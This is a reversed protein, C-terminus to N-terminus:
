ALTRMPRAAAAGQQLHRDRWRRLTEVDPHSRDSYVATAVFCDGFIIDYNIRGAIADICVACFSTGNTRMMCDFEPRYIDCAMRDGGEFLGVTGAAVPSSQTDCQSCTANQTTPIPTAPDVLSAWKLTARDTNKTLNKESPEPDTHNGALDCYEDGLDFAGHGLEHIPVTWPTGTSTVAMGAPGSGGYEGHNVIVLIADWEAVYDNVTTEVLGTDVTLLRRLDQGEPPPECFAADFYTRASTAVAGFPLTTDPCTLPNDAGSEDAIVDLKFVNIEASLDDFPAWSLLEAVFEDAKAGFDGQENSDFGESVIVLNWNLSEVGVDRIKTAGVVTGDSIGM